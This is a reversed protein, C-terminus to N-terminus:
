SFNTELRVYDFTGYGVDLASDPSSSAFLSRRWAAIRDAQRSQCFVSMEKEDHALKAGPHPKIDEVTMGLKACEITLQRRFAGDGKSILEEFTGQEIVQGAEMYVILDANVVSTLRHTVMLVTCNTTLADVRALIESETKIDLASTAEDLIFLQAGRILARALAVRQKQGGSLRDGDAGIQDMLNREPIDLWDELGAYRAAQEVLRPSAERDGYQINEFLTSNFLHAQQSVVSIIERLATADLENINIGNILIVGDDPSYFQQLLKLLTTKGSGSEGVVAVKQGSRVSFSVRDLIKLDGQSFSVNRFEITPPHTIDLERPQFNDKAESGIGDGLFDIIDQFDVSAVHLDSVAESLRNLTPQVIILLYSLLAFNILNNDNHSYRYFAYYAVGFFGLANILNGRLQNKVIQRHGARYAKKQSDLKEAVREVEWSVNDFQHAVQYRAIASLMGGYAPYVTKMKEESAIGNNYASYASSSIYAVFLATSLLGVRWDLVMVGTTVFSIDFVAPIFKGYYSPVVEDASSYVTRLLQAFVGTPASLHEDLPIDYTRRLMNKSLHRQVDSRVEALIYDRFAPLANSTFFITGALLIVSRNSILADLDDDDHSGLQIFLLPAIVKASTNALSILLSGIIGRSNATNEWVYSSVFNKLKRLKEFM